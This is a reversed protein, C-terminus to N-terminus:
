GTPPPDLVLQRHGSLRSCRIRRLTAGRSVQSVAITRGAEVFYCVRRLAPGCLWPVRQALRTASRLRRMNQFPLRHTSPRAGAAGGERCCRPDRL